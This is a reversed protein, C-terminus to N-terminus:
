WSATLRSCEFLTLFMALQLSGKVAKSLHLSLSIWHIGQTNQITASVLHWTWTWNGHLAM